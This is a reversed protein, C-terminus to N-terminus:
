ALNQWLFGHDAITAVVMALGPTTRLRGTPDFPGNLSLALSGLVYGNVFDFVCAPLVEASSLLM